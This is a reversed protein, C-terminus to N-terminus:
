GHIDDIKMSGPLTGPAFKFEIRQPRHDPKVYRSCFRSLLCEPLFVVVGALFAIVVFFLLVIGILFLVTIEM